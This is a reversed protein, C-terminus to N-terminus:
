PLESPDAIESGAKLIDGPAGQQVITGADMRVLRDAAELAFRMEHTVVIMTLGSSALSRMTALVEGDLDHDLASTPEDFMLLQPQAALARAIAVRQQQGGSLQNPRRDAEGELGVQELLEMAKREAAARDVGYVHIPAVCVNQLATMHEFLNFHQFVMGIRADARSRALQRPSSLENGAADYGVRVGGVTVVGDDPSELHNILRLLTSKGSGSPGMIAVVEGRDVSLNVGRLVSKSGYSKRLEHCYVFPLGAEAGAFPGLAASQTLDTGEASVPRKRKFIV